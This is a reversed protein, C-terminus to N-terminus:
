GHEQFRQFLLKELEFDFVLLPVNRLRFVFLGFGSEVLRKLAGDLTAAVALWVSIQMGNISCYNCTGTEGSFGAGQRIM